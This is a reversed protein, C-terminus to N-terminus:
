EKQKSSYLGLDKYPHRRRWAKTGQMNESSGERRVQRLAAGM